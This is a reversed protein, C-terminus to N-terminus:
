QHYRQKLLDNLANLADIWTFIGVLKQNDEILACGYKNEAMMACVENIPASPKTVYPNETFAEEVKVNEPDVGNLTEVLKIDRDTLIGILRGAKLVPLHRIQHERMMKEAKVLTQDSGITHPQTTMFKQVTPMAKM